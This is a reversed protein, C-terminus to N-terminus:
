KKLKCNNFHYRNNKATCKLCHPCIEKIKPKRMNKKHEQSFKKGEKSKSIKEITEKKHKKGYLPHNVGITAKSILNLTEQSYINTKGKNWTPKGYLPNVVGRKGYMPNNQGSRSTSQKKKTEESVVIGITGEGGDTMNVLPGFGLDRRGYLAILYREIACAEEWSINDYLIQIEYSTKNVINHWHKNRRYKSDARKIKKGIGIYFIENTDKRRHQYVIAMFYFLSLLLLPGAVDLARHAL